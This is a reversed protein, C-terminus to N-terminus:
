QSDTAQKTIEESMNDTYRENTASRAEQHLKIASLGDRMIILRRTEGKIEVEERVLDLAVGLNEMEPM